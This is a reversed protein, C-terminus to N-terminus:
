AILWKDLDYVLRGGEVSVKALSTDGEKANKNVVKSWNGSENDFEETFYQEAAQVTPAETPAVVATDKVAPPAETPATTPAPNSLCSLLALLLVGVMLLPRLFASRKM